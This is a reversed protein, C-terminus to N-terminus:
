IIKNEKAVYVAMVNGVIYIILGSIIIASWIINIQKIITLYIILLIAFPKYFIQMKLLLVSQNPKSLAFASFVAMVIFLPVVLSVVIPDAGRWDFYNRLSPIFFMVAILVGFGGTVIVNYLYMIKLLNNKNLM